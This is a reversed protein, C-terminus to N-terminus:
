RKRSANKSETKSRGKRKQQGSLWLSANTICLGLDMQKTMLATGAGLGLENSGVCSHLGHELVLSSNQLRTM